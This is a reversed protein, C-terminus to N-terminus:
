NRVASTFARRPIRGLTRHTILNEVRAPTFLYMWARIHLRSITWEFGIPQKQSLYNGWLCVTIPVRRFVHTGKTPRQFKGETCSDRTKYEPGLSGAEPDEPSKAKDRWSLSCPQGPNVWGTGCDWTSLKLLKLFGWKKGMEKPESYKTTQQWIDQSGKNGTKDM